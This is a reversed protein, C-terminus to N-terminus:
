AATVGNPFYLKKYIQDTLYDLYASDSINYERLIYDQILQRRLFFREEEPIDQNDSAAEICKDMHEATYTSTYWGIVQDNFATEELIKDKLIRVKQQSSIGFFVFVFGMLLEWLSSNPQGSGLHYLLLFYHLVALICIVLGSIIFYKSSNTSTRFKEESPVFSPSPELLRNMYSAAQDATEKERKHFTELLLVADYEQERLVLVDYIGSDTDPDLSVTADLGNENFFDAIRDADERSVQAMVARGLTDWYAMSENGEKGALVGTKVLSMLM